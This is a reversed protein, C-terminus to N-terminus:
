VDMATIIILHMEKFSVIVRLDRGDLTKGRIAYNWEQYAEQYADKRKEHYGHRLVYLIEPRRIFRQWQRFHAHCTDLYRGVDLCQEVAEKVNVIKQKRSEPM